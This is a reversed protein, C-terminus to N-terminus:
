YYFQFNATRVTGDNLAMSFQRCTGSWSPSTTWYYLYQKGLFYMGASQAPVAPGIPLGSTCSVERSSPSGPLFINMGKDGGLSFTIGITNGATLYNVAPPNYVRGTFGSFPYQVSVIFSSTSTNGNADTATVNVTTNGVNFISGSLPNTTVTPTGCNDTATPLPFTVAMSTSTSNMPLVAVVNAIPNIVPPVTENLVTVSLTATAFLSGPGPDSVRLTFSASTAGCAAAVNASVQGAANVSINSVTVGNVTASAGNNVTVALTGAANDPDAVTAIQSSSVGAGQVRSIGSAAIITPADNVAEIQVTTTQTACMEPSGTDCVKIAIVCSAPPVPGAPTFSFAGTSQDISGGCSHTGDVLSWVAGPGDVDSSTATHSYLVDETATGVPTNTIQPTDNVPNVTINVTAINSDVSGDNAKYTFSDQGSWNANPTYAFSGDSNLTLAGNAPGSVLVASLTDGADTDTDNGLVGPAAINLVVDEDTSYNDNVAAPPQNTQVFISATVLAQQGTNDTCSFTLTNAGANAATPTWNFVSVVPSPATLLLSPTMTAGVPLGSVNLTVPTNPQGTGPDIDADTGKVTFTMPSGASVTTSYNSTSDNIHCAPPTGISQVLKILVDVPTKSKVNGSQDLDEVVFQAAWFNSQNLGVTNWTVIGTTANIALGSPNSVGMEAATALRYRLPDGDADSAVLTFSSNASVSMSVVPPLASVPSRNLSLPRVLTEYRFNGDAGNNLNSIRCCSSVSATYPGAGAYTRNITMEGVFWDETASYSTVTISINAQGGDGFVLITGTNVVNGTVVNGFASRRWGEQIKFVVTGTPNGNGDLVPQYSVNGYRFHSAQVEVAALGIFTLIVLIFLHPKLVSM